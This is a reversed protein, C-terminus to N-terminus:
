SCGPKNVHECLGGVTETKPSGFGTRDRKQIFWRVTIRGDIVLDELFAKEKLNEKWVNNHM